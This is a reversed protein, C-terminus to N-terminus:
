SDVSEYYAQKIISLVYTASDLDGRLLSADNAEIADLFNTWELVWTNAEPGFQILETDPPGMEPRMKHVTLTQEGYSGTLGDVQFKATECYIELSFMNKWESWSVHFTAWPSQKDTGGGLSVV